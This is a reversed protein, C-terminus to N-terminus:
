AKDENNLIPLDFFNLGIIYSETKNNSKETPEDGDDGKGDEGPREAKLTKKM